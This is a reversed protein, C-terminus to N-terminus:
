WAYGAHTAIATFVVLDTVTHIVLSAAMGHRMWLATVLGSYVAAIAAGTPGDPIGHWHALGFSACEMLFLGVPQTHTLLSPLMGPWVAEEGVANLVAAGSTLAVLKGPGPPAIPFVLAAGLIRERDVTIVVLGALGGMALCGIVATPTLARSRRGLLILRKGSRHRQGLRELALWAGVATLCHMPWPAGVAVPAVYAVM